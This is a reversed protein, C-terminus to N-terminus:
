SAGGVDDEDGSKLRAMQTKAVCKTRALAM